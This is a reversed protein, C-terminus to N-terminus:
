IGPSDITSGRVTGNTVEINMQAHGGLIKSHMYLILPLTLPDVISEGPIYLAGLAGAHILPEREYLTDSSIEEIDIVNN